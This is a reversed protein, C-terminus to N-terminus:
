YLQFPNPKNELAVVRQTLDDVDSEVDELRDLILTITEYSPEWEFDNTSVTSTGQREDSAGSM